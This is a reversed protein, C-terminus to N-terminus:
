ICLRHMRLLCCVTGDILNVNYLCLRAGDEVILHYDTTRITHGRGDIFVTSDREFVLNQTLDIVRSNALPALLIALQGGSPLQQLKSFLSSTSNSGLLNVAPIHQVIFM